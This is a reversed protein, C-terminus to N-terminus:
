IQNALFQTYMFVPTFIHMDISRKEKAKRLSNLYLKKVAFLVM